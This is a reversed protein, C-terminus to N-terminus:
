LNKKSKEVRGNVIKVNFCKIDKTKAIKIIEEKLKRYKNLKENEKFDKANFLDSYPDGFYIATINGIKHKKDGSKILFRFEDEHNWAELKKTLINKAIINFDSIPNDNPAFIDPINKLYEIQEINGINDYNDQHIGVEVEIAVGKFGGAYYGWMPPYKFGNIGSFSCIKYTIKKNFIKEIRKEIIKDSVGYCSFVGEIPDNLEYFSSCYFGNDLIDKLRCFDSDKEECIEDKLGTILQRFRYIKMNKLLDNKYRLPSFVM